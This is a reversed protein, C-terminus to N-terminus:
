PVAQGVPVNLLQEGLATDSNIVDGDVPPHLTEGRLEDLSGPRAPVRRAVPPEGILRVDLHGALPSVQVPCDVLVALDDVDQQRHPAVQSGGPAEEGPSCVPVIGTSTM